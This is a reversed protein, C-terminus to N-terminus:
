LVMRIAPHESFWKYLRLREEDNKVETELNMSLYRGGSSANGESIICKEAELAADIASLIAEREEGILRYHWTCPYDIEPKCCKKEESM